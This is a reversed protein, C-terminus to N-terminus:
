TSLFRVIAVRDYDIHATEHLEEEIDTHERSPRYIILYTVKPQLSSVYQVGGPHLATKNVSNSMM